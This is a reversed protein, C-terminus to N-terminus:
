SKITELMVAIHPMIEHVQMRQVLIRQFLPKFFWPMSRLVSGYLAGKWGYREYQLNAPSPFYDGAFHSVFKQWTPIDIQMMTMMKPPKPEKLLDVRLSAIIRRASIRATCEKSREVNM